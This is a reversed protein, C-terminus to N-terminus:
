VYAISERRRCAAIDGIGKKNFEFEKILFDICWSVLLGSERGGYNLLKVTGLDGYSVISRREQIRLIRM